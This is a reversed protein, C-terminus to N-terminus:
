RSKLGNPDVHDHYRCRDISKAFEDKNFIKYVKNEGRAELLDLFFKQPLLHVGQIKMMRQALTNLSPVTLAIFEVILSRLPSGDVTNEYVFPLQSASFSWASILNDLIAEAVANKFCPSIIKDGFVWARCLLPFVNKDSAVEVNFLKRTYLWLQFMDFIDQDTDKMTALRMMGEQFDGAFMARFFGSHHCLLGKHLPYEKDAPGAKVVIITDFM